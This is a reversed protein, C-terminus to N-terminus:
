QTCILAEMTDMTMRSRFYHIIHGGTSFGPESAVTSISISLIDWAIKLLILYRESNSKWWSLIDFYITENWQLITEKMCIDNDLVWRESIPDSVSLINSKSYGYGSRVKPYPYLYSYQHIHFFSIQIRTPALNLHPYGRIIRM